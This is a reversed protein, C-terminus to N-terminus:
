VSAESPLQRPHRLRRALAAELIEPHGVVRLGGVVGASKRDLLDLLLMPFGVQKVPSEAVFEPNQLADFGVDRGVTREVIRVLHEIAEIEDHRANVSPELQVPLRLGVTQKAGDRVRMRRDQAVHGSPLQQPPGAVVDVDLLHQAGARFVVHGHLDVRM